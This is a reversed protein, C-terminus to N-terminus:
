RTSACAARARVPLAPPPYLLADLDNPGGVAPAEDGIMAAHGMAHGAAPRLSTAHSSHDHAHATAAAGRRQGRVRAQRRHPGGRATAAAALLVAHRLKKTM